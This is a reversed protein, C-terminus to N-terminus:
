SAHRKSHSRHFTTGTTGDGTAIWPGSSVTQMHQGASQRLFCSNIKSSGTQTAINQQVMSQFGCRNKICTCFMSNCYKAAGYEPIWLSEQHMHLISSQVGCACWM